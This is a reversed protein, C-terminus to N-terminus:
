VKEAFHDRRIAYWYVSKLLPASFVGACPMWSWFVSLFTDMGMFILNVAFCLASIFAWLLFANRVQKKADMVIVETANKRALWTIAKALAPLFFGFWGPIAITWGLVGFAPINSFWLGVGALYVTGWCLMATYAIAGARNVRVRRRRGTITDILEDLNGLSAVAENFAAEEDIGRALSDEIRDAIHAALEEQQEAIVATQEAGRFLGRVYYEVARPDKM